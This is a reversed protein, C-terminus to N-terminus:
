RRKYDAVIRKVEAPPVFATRFAIPRQASRGVFFIAMAGSYESGRGFRMTTIELGAFPFTHPEQAGLAKLSERIADPDMARGSVACSRENAYTIWLLSNSREIVYGHENRHSQALLGAVDKENVALAGPEAKPLITDLSGFDEGNALCYKKLVELVVGSQDAPLPGRQAAVPAAVFLALLLMVVRMAWRGGPLWM